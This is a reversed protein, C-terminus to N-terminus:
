DIENKNQRKHTIRYCRFISFNDMFSFFNNGFLDAKQFNPVVYKRQNRM